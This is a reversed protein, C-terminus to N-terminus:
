KLIVKEARSATDGIVNVTYVGQAVPLDIKTAYGNAYYHMTRGAMDSIYVDQLEIGDTVICVSNGESEDVYINILSESKNDEIDTTVDDGPINQNGDDVNDDDPETSDAVKLNLYYRGENYSAPLIDATYSGNLLDYYRGTYADVLTVESFGESFATTFEVYMPTNVYIGLPITQRESAIVYEAYKNNEINMYLDPTSKNASFVKTSNSASEENKGLFEDYKILITSHEPNLTSGAHLNIAITPQEQELSRSKTDGYALWEEEIVLDGNENPVFIFGHQPKLHVDADGYMDPTKVSKAEYDYVYVDGKEALNKANINYPYSNNLIYAQGATLNKYTLMEDDNVFYGEFPRFSKPVTADGVKDPDPKIYTYYVSASLKYDGYRDPVSVAFATNPEIKRTLSSFTNGWTFDYGGKGNSTATAEHMYVDPEFNLFYDGSLVDRENGNEDFPKVVPGVLTWKDRDVTMNTVAKDYRLVGESDLVEVGKLAAGYELEITGAFKTPTTIKGVGASVQEAAPIGAFTVVGKDDMKVTASKRATADFQEPLTPYYHETSTGTPYQTSKYKPIIVHLDEPLLEVCTLKKLKGDKNIYGWNNRNDWEDSIGGLWYIATTVPEAATGEYAGLTWKSGSRIGDRYRDHKLEADTININNGVMGKVQSATLQDGLKLGPDNVDEPQRIVLSGPGTASTECVLSSVNVFKGNTCSGFAFKSTTLRNNQDYVSWFNNPCYNGNKIRGLVGDKKGKVDTDYSYCNNYQFYIDGSIDSNNPSGHTIDEASLFDFTSNNNAHDAVYFTNYLIAINDTKTNFQNYVRVARGASIENTNWFVNNYFLANEVQQIWLLTTHAGMFNNRVFKINKCELFKASAGWAKANADAEKSTLQFENNEFTLGDIGNVHVGTFGNSGIYCNHVLINAGTLTCSANAWDASRSDDLELATTKKAGKNSPNSFIQLADLEVNRSSRILMHAIRPTEFVLEGKDNTKKAARIILKNKKNYDNGGKNFDSVHLVQLDQANGDQGGSVSKKEGWYYNKGEKQHVTIVVPQKLNYSGNDETVYESLNKLRNLATQLDGYVLACDDYYATDKAYTLGDVTVRITDGGGPIPICGGTSFYRTEDSLVAGDNTWIYAKYGYVSGEVLIDEGKDNKALTGTFEYGRDLRDTSSVGDAEIYHKYKQYNTPIEPTCGAGQCFAFGYYVINSCEDVGPDQQMYGWLKATNTDEDYVADRTLLVPETYEFVPIDTDDDDDDGDDSCSAKDACTYASWNGYWYKGDRITTITYLNNNDSLTLDDTQDWTADWANNSSGGNMRCIVVKPYGSPVAVKYLGDCTSSEMSVWTTSGNSNGFFYAAFRAGDKKWDDNPKLYITRCDGTDDGEDGSGSDCGATPTINVTKSNSDFTFTCSTGQAITTCGLTPTVNVKGNDNNATNYDVTANNGGYNATLTYTTGSQYTLEKWSWSSGDWPHKLWYHQAAITYTFKYNQNNNSAWFEESCGNGNKQGTVKIWFEVTHEGSTAPFTENGNWNWWQNNGNNGSHGMSGLEKADGNDYKVYLTAGCTNGGNYRYTEIISQTLKPASTLNTGLSKAEIGSLALDSYTGTSFTFSVDVLGAEAWVSSSFGLLVCLLTFVRVARSLALRSITNNYFRKM